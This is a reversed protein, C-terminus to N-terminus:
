GRLAMIRNVLDENASTTVKMHWGNHIWAKARGTSIVPRIWVEAIVDRNYEPLTM